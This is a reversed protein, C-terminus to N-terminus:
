IKKELLVMTYPTILTVKNNKVEVETNSYFDILKTGNAFTDEVFLEKKGVQLDIGVVVSDNFNNESYTRKFVYPQESIMKHVGAGVAPHQSRFKGLKQWHMLIEQTKPNNQIADWNMFSRLNADGKAGEVKLIRASEDGYYIQASGPSLLLKTAAEFPKERM